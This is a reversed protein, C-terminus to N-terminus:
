ATSCSATVTARGGHDDPRARRVAAAARDARARRGPRRRRHLGPPLDGAAGRTGWLSLATSVAGPALAAVALGMDGHALAEAVLTGAMASRETSIGGLEEPVGLIPLGIESAPRSCRRPRRPRRRRGRRGRTPGGRRRVRTVVDVLMQEDETPTLDFVGPPPPPRAGPDPTGAGRGARAFQRNVRASPASAPAPPRSSWGSPPSACARAPRAGPDPRAPEPVRRRLRDPGAERPGTLGHRGARDRTRQPVSM